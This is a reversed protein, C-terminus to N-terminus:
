GARASAIVASILSANGGPSRFLITPLAPQHDQENKVDTKANRRM